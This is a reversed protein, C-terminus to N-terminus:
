KNPKGHAGPLFIASTRATNRTPGQPWMCPFTGSYPRRTRMPFRMGNGKWDPLMASPSATCVGCRVSRWDSKRKRMSPLAKKKATLAKKRKYQPSLFMRIFNELEPMDTEMRKRMGMREMIKKKSLKKKKM